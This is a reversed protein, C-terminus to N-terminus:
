QWTHIEEVKKLADLRARYYKADKAKGQAELSSIFNENLKKIIPGKFGEPTFTTIFQVKSDALFFGKEDRSFRMSVIQGDGTYQWIDDPNEYDLSRRQGSITNGNAYMIAKRVKPKKPEEADESASSGQRKFDNMEGIYEIPRIVHPHNSVVIDAGADILDHYFKRVSDKVTMVYEEEGTHVSVLFLDPSFDKKMKEIRKVFADRGKKTPIIINVHEYDRWTNMFETAAIFLIKYGEWSIQEFTFEGDKVIGSFYIPRASKASEKAVGEAWKQTEFIGQPEQDDTHNNALSILNFGAHFMAQPYSPQMNFNPYSEFPSDPNVPAELNAFAFDSKSVDERIDDWILSFDHLSFNQTHAMVDGAFVIELTQEEPKQEIDSDSPIEQKTSRCSFFIITSFIALATRFKKQM